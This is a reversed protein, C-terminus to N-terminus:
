AAPIHNGCHTNTDLDLGQKTRQPDNYHEIYLVATGALSNLAILFAWRMAGHQADCALCALELLALMLQLLRSHKAPEFFWRPLLYWEYSM